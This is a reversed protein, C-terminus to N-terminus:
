DGSQSVLFAIECQAITVTDELFIFKGVHDLKGTAPNTVSLITQAAAEEAAFDSVFATGTPGTFRTLDTWEDLSAESRIQVIIEVGATCATVDTLVCDIHLTNQYGGSVDIAGTELVEPPTVLSWELAQTNETKALTSIGSLQTLKVRVHFRTAATTEASNFIVRAGSIDPPLAVAYTAVVTLAATDETWVDATDPKTFQIGDLVTITDAAFSLSYCLLFGLLLAGIRKM